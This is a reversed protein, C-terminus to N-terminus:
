YDYTKTEVWKRYNRKKFIEKNKVVYEKVNLKM